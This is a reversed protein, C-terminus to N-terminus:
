IPFVFLFFLLLYVFSLENAWYSSVFVTFMMCNKDFVRCWKTMRLTTLRLGAVLQSFWQFQLFGLLLWYSIFVFVSTGYTVYGIAIAVQEERTISVGLSQWLLPFSSQTEEVFPVQFSQSVEQAQHRRPFFYSRQKEEKKREIRQTWNGLFLCCSRKRDYTFEAIKHM